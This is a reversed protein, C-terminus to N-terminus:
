HLAVVLVAGLVGAGLALWAVYDRVDGSHLRRLPRMAASALTSCRRLWSPGTRSRWASAAFLLAGVSAAAGTGAHFLTPATSELDGGPTLTVAPAGNLVVRAYAATNLVHASALQAQDFLQPLLGAACAAALLVGMPILMTMPTRDETGSEEEHGEHQASADEPVDDIGLFIRGTVRLWAGATIASAVIFVAILWPLGHSLAADELLGKGAYTVFPPLGALALAGAVFLAAEIAMAARRGRGRLRAEDVDQFRHVLIGAGIFLAGKVLGHGLVYVGAAGLGLPTFLAVGCLFIGAHSVTSFALLRKIHHQSFCMAAGLLATVVGFVILTWHIASMSTGFAPAFVSWHVRAVAYLGLEVMAGSFLICAPTPAAAHADALWFQFPVISAKVLFGTMVLAWAAVILADAHTGLGQGIQLLNLAGTRAYLLGIGMLILYAGVSNTVAFNFAGQVPGRDEVRYATLAYASVGMVEFFVFMDFLDGTLSFGVMGALFTLMLVHYMAGVQKFYRWSFLLAATVLVAALSAMGAGLPDVSFDVGIACRVPQCLSSGARPTWGGFWHIAPGTATAVMMGICMGAVAVSVILAASDLIRHRHLVSSLAALLAASVLPLAVALPPLASEVRV